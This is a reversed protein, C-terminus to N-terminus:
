TAKVLDESLLDISDVVCADVSAAVSADRDSTPEEPSGEGRRLDVMTDEARSDQASAATESSSSANGFFRVLLDRRRRVRPLPLFFRLAAASSSASSSSSNSMCSHAGMLSSSVPGWAGRSSVKALTVFNHVDGNTGRVGGGARGGRAMMM